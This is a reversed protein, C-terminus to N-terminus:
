DSPMVLRPGADTLTVRLDGCGKKDLFSSLEDDDKFHTDGIERALEEQLDVLEEDVSDWGDNM